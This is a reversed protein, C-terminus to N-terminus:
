VQSLNHTGDDFQHETTYNERASKLCYTWKTQENCGQNHSQCLSLFGVELGGFRLMAPAEGVDSLIMVTM